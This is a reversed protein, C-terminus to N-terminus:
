SRAASLAARALARDLMDLHDAGFFLRSGFVFSPVGFLSSAVAEDTNAAVAAKIAEDEVVEAMPRPGLGVADAIAQLVTLDSIDAGEAWYGRM